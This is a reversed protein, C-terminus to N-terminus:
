VSVTDAAESLYQIFYFLPRFVGAKIIAKLSYIKGFPLCGTIYKLLHVVYQVFIM